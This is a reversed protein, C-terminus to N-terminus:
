EMRPFIGRISPFAIRTCRDFQRDFQRDVTALACRVYIVKLFCDELNHNEVVVAVMDIKFSLASNQDIYSMVTDIYLMM